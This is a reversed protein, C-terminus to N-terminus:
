WLTQFGKQVPEVGQKFAVEANGSFVLPDKGIQVEQLLHHSWCDPHAELQVLYFMAVTNEHSGGRCDGRM